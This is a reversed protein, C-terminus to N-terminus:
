RMAHISVEIKQNESLLHNDSQKAFCDFNLNQKRKLILNASKHAFHQKDKIVYSEIKDRKWNTGLKNM